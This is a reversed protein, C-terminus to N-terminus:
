KTPLNNNLDSWINEEQLKKYWFQNYHEVTLFLFELFKTHSFDDPLKELADRAESLYSESHNMTEEFGSKADNMKLSYFLPWSLIKAAKDRISDEIENGCGVSEAAKAM